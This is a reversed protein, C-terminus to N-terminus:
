DSLWTAPSYRLLVNPSVKHPSSKKFTVSCVLSCCDSSTFVSASSWLFSLLDWCLALSRASFSNSSSTSLRRWIACRLAFLCLMGCPSLCACCCHQLARKQCLMVGWGGLGDSHWAGFCTCRRRGVWRWACMCRGWILKLSCVLKCRWYLCYTQYMKIM